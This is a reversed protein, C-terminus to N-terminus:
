QTIKYPLLGRNYYKKLRRLPPFEVNGGHQVLIRFVMDQITILRNLSKQQRVRANWARVDALTLSNRRMTTM